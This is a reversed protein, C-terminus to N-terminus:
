SAHRSRRGHAPPRAILMNAPCQHLLANATSGRHRHHGAHWRDAASLGRSGFAVLDPACARVHEILVRSPDGSLTVVTASSYVDPVTSRAQVVAHDVDMRGDDVVALSIETSEIWPMRAVATLAADAGRSGDYCVIVRRTRGGHRVLVLPEPPQRSLWEAISGIHLAKALGAGRAGIVLLDNPRTLALRPDCEALLNRVAVFGAETFPIRPDPPYWAHFMSREEPLPAGSRPWLATLIELKWGTWEHENLWLWAVDSGPSRDDGFGVVPMVDASM